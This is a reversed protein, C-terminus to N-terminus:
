STFDAAVFCFTTMEFKLRASSQEIESDAILRREDNRPAFRRLLGSDVFSTAEDSARGAVFFGKRM